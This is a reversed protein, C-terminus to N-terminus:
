DWVNNRQFSIRSNIFPIDGSQMKKRQSENNELVAKIRVVTRNIDEENLFNYNYIVEKM